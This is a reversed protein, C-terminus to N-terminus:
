QSISGFIFHVDNIIFNNDSNFLKLASLSWFLIRHKLSLNQEM